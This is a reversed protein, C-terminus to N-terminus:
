CIKLMSSRSAWGQSHCVEELLAMHVGVLGCREITVSRHAVLEFVHNQPHLAYKWVVVNWDRSGM